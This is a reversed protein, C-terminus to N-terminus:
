VVSRGLIRSQKRIYDVTSKGIEKGDLYTNNDKEEIKGLLRNTEVLLEKVDNNNTGRDFYEASNFKKPVVAEGKHIYALQDEPVYNTGVDLKPITPIKVDDLSVKSGFAKAISVILKRVPKLFANLGKIWLNFFGIIGNIVTKVINKMGNFVKDWNGKLSNTIINVIDRVIDIIGGIVKSLTKIVPELVKKLIDIVKDVVPKVVKWIEGIMEIIDSILLLVKDVIPKLYEKYIDVIWKAIDKIREVMDKVIQIVVKLANQFSESMTWQKLSEFISNSFDQITKFIDAIGQIIKTGNGDNKWANKFADSVNKIIDFVLRWLNLLNEVIGQGTGNTWVEALSKGIEAFTDKLSLIMNKASQILAGGTNDWAKKMPEFITAFLAKLKEIIVEVGGLKIEPIEIQNVEGSSDDVNTIEDIGALSKNAKANAKAQQNLAKANARAVMNIGTLAQVFANVYAVAKSFLNIVFEIVPALQAGLASWTDNLQENLQQDYALYSSVAKRMAFFASRVGIIALTFKKLNKKVNNVMTQIGKKVSDSSKKIGKIGEKVKNISNISSTNSTEKIKQNLEKVEREANNIQLAYDKFATSGPDLGKMKAKLERIATKLQQIKVIDEQMSESMGNGKQKLAGIYGKINEKAKNFSVGLKAGITNTSENVSKLREEYRKLLAESASGDVDIGLAKNENISQKLKEIKEALKDVEQQSQGSFGYNFDERFENFKQKMSDTSTEVFSKLKSMKNKFGDTIAEIKVGYTNKAM